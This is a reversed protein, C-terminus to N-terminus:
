EDERSTKVDERSTAIPKNNRKIDVQKNKSIVLSGKEDMRNAFSIVSGCNLSFYDAQQGTILSSPIKSKILLNQDIANRPGCPHIKFMGKFNQPGVEDNIGSSM